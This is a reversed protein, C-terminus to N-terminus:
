GALSPLSRLRALGILAAWRPPGPPLPAQVGCARSPLGAPALARLDPDADVPLVAVAVDRDALVPELPAPRPGCVALTVPVDAEAELRRVVRAAEEADAPLGLWALRGCATAAGGHAALGAALRRAPPIAAGSPTRAADRGGAGPSAAGPASWVAVIAAPADARARLEGAAAAAVPLVARAAAGVVAASVPRGIPPAAVAAPADPAPEVFWALLRVLPNM